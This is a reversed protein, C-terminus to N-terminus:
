FKFKPLTVIVRVSLLPCVIQVIHKISFVQMGDSLPIQIFATGLLGARLLFRPASDRILNESLCCKVHTTM